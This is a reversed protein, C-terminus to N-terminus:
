SRVPTHPREWRDPPGPPVRVRARIDIKAHPTVNTGTPPRSKLTAFGTVYAGSFAGKPVHTLTASPPGDHPLVEYIAGRGYKEVTLVSELLQSRSRTRDTWPWCRPKFDPDAMPRENPPMERKTTRREPPRLAKSESGGSAQLLQEHASPSPIHPASQCPLM